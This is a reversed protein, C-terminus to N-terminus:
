QKVEEVNLEEMIEEQAKQLSHLQIKGALQFGITILGGILSIEVWWWVGPIKIIAMAIIGLLMGVMTITIGVLEGKTKQSATMTEYGEKLRRKFEEKGLKHYNIIGNVIRKSAKFLFYAAILIGIILLIYIIM